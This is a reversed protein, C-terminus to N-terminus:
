NFQELLSKAPDLQSDIESRRAYFTSDGQQTVAGALLDPYSNIFEHCLQITVAAQIDRLEDVLESGDFKLVSKLYIQGNDVQDSAEFLVTTIEDKDELIQWTLPSWGKGHPLDSEHVVLNNKFKGLVDISVVRLFSLYFCVDAGILEEANHVHILRHGSRLLDLKFNRLYSNIWSKEDSIIAISLQSTSPPCSAGPNKSDLRSFFLVLLLTQANLSQM